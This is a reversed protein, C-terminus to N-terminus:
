FVIGPFLVFIIVCKAFPMRVNERLRYLRKIDTIFAVVAQTSTHLFANYM